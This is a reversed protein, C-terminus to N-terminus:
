NQKATLKTMEQQTEVAKRLVAIGAESLGTFQVPFDIQKGETRDYQRMVMGIVAVDPSSLRRIVTAEGEPFFAFLPKHPNAARVYVISGDVDKPSLGAKSMASRFAELKATAKQWVVSPHLLTTDKPPVGLRFNRRVTAAPSMKKTMKDIGKKLNALADDSKFPGV